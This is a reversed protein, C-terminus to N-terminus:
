YIASLTQGAIRPLEGSIMREAIPSCPGPLIGCYTAPIRFFIQRRSAAIAAQGLASQLEFVRFNLIRFVNRIQQKLVKLFVGFFM